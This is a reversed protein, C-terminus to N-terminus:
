GLGLPGTKVEIVKDAVAPTPTADDTAFQHVHSLTGINTGQVDCVQLGPVLRALKVEDMEFVGRAIRHGALVIRPPEWALSRPRSCSRSRCGCSADASRSLFAADM